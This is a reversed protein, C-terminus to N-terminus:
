EFSYAEKPLYIGDGPVGTAAMYPRNTGTVIRSAPYFILVCRYAWPVIEEAGSPALPPTGGHRLRGTFYVVSVKDLVCFIGVSLLHFRGAEYGPPLDSCPVMGSLGCALDGQDVHEGGFFGQENLGEGVFTM